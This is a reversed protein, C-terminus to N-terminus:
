DPVSDVRAGLSRPEAAHSLKAVDRTLPVSRYWRACEEDLGAFDAPSVLLV